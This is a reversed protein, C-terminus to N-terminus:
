PCTREYRAYADEKVVPNWDYVGISFWMPKEVYIHVYCGGSAAVPPTTGPAVPCTSAGPADVCVVVGPETTDLVDTSANIVRDRVASSWVTPDTAETTAGFRAGERMADAISIKEFYALGGTTIGMLLMILPIVILGFEVAVAGQERRRAGRRRILARSM